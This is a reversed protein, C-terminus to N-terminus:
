KGEKKIVTQPQSKPSTILDELEEIQKRLAKLEDTTAYDVHPIPQSSSSVEVVPVTYEADEKILSYREFKPPEFQSYSATKTYYYPLNENKFTVSNGPAVPYRRAEDESQVSIIEWSSQTQPQQPMPQSYGYPPAQSVQPQMGPMPQPQNFSYGPQAMPAPPYMYQSYPVPPAYPM